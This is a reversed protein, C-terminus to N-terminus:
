EGHEGATAFTSRERAVRFTGTEERLPRRADRIEIPLSSCWAAWRDNDDGYPMGSISELAWIVEEKPIADDDRLLGILADAGLICGESGLNRIALIRDARNGQRDEVLPIVRNLLRDQILPPLPSFTGIGQERVWERWSEFLHDFGFGFHRKFVEEPQAKSLNDSYFARFRDQSEAPAQKGTLFDCV